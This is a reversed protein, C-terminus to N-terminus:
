QKHCFPDTPKCPTPGVVVQMPNSPIGNAVVELVGKTGSPVDPCDFKTLVPLDGSAVGMYSHDHTRCYHVLPPFCYQGICAPPETIRVLPYNTASQYEDGFASAQSMGNFRLGSITNATDNYVTRTGSCSGSCIVPSWSSDYAQNIPTYVELDCGSCRNPIFLVQGTPLVLMQGYSSGALNSAGLTSSVKVLANDPSPTLELFTVPGTDRGPAGMILVNGNPLLAAPGDSM